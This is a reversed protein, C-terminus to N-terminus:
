KYLSYVAVLSQAFAGLGGLVVAVNIWWQLKVKQETVVREGNVYLRGDEDLGLSLTKGSASDTSMFEEVKQM